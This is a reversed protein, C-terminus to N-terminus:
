GRSKHDSFPEVMYGNLLESAGQHRVVRCLQTLEPGWICKSDIGKKEDGM